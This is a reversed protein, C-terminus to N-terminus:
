LHALRRFSRRSRLYRDGDCPSAVGPCHFSDTYQWFHPKRWARPVWGLWTSTYAALFLPCRTLVIPNGLFDRWFSGTYVIPRHGTRKRYRRVFRRVFRVGVRGGTGSEIDLVGPLDRDPRWGLLLATDVFHDAEAFGDAGSNDAYHYPGHPIGLERLAKLNPGCTPDVYFTGQSCKVFAFAITVMTGRWNVQGQWNSVDIGQRNWRM